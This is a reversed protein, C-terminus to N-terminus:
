SASDTNEIRPISTHRGGTAGIQVRSPQESSNMNPFLVLPDFGSQAQMVPKGESICVAGVSPRMFPADAADGDHGQSLFVVAM